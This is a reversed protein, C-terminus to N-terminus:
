ISRVRLKCRKQSQQTRLAFDVNEM